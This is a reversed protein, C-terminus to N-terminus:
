NNMMQNLKEPDETFENNEDTISIYNNEEKKKLSCEKCFSPIDVKTLLYFNYFYNFKKGCDCCVRVSEKGYVIEYCNSCLCLGDREFETKKIKFIKKCVDCIKFEENEIEYFNKNIENLGLIECFKNCKHYSFFKLINIQENDNDSKYLDFSFILGNYEIINEILIQGYTICYSFHSFAELFQENFKQSVNTYLDKSPLFPINYNSFHYLYVSNININKIDSLNKSLIKLNLKDCIFDCISFNVLFNNIYYEKYYINKDIKESIYGIMKKNLTLNNILINLDDENEKSNLIQFINNSISLECEIKNIKINPSNFNPVKDKEIILKTTYCDCIFSKCSNNVDFLIMDTKNINTIFKNGFNLYIFNKDRDNFNSIYKNILNLYQEKNEVLIQIQDDSFFDETLFSIIDEFFYVNNLANNLRIKEKYNINNLNIFIYNKKSDENKIYKMIQKCLSNDGYLILIKIYGEWKYESILKCISKIDLTIFNESIKIEKNNIENNDDIENLLIKDNISDKDSNLNTNVERPLIVPTDHLIGKNYIYKIILKKNSKIKTIKDLINLYNEIYADDFSTYASVFINIIEIPSLSLKNILVNTYKKILDCEIKLNKSKISYNSFAENKTYFKPTNDERHTKKGLLNLSDEPYNEINNFNNNNSTNGNSM